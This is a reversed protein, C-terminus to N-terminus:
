APACGTRCAAVRSTGVEANRSRVGLPQRQHRDRQVDGPLQLPVALKLAERIARLGVLEDLRYDTLSPFQLESPGPKLGRLASGSSASFLHARLCANAPQLM